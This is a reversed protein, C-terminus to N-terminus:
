ASTEATAAFQVTREAVLDPCYMPLDHGAGPVIETRAYPMQAAIRAAVARADYMLSREGLLVLTPVAVGRLEDDTFEPPSLHRRRFSFTARMLRMADDDLLTANGLLRAAFRRVPTPALGAMGGLLIWALFRGSLRGFGAPDLLTITATRGPSHLERQLAVWGGYSCGVLHAREVELATLVEDLWQAWDRGDNLPKRQVSAGPEGVPDIAIVPRDRSLRRVHPHWMLSNGGAGPLLVFPVGGLGSRYARTVGFSTPLDLAAAEAPWLRELTDEYADLYRARAKDSTFESIREVAMM